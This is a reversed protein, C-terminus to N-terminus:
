CLTSDFAFAIEIFGDLAFHTIDLLFSKIIFFAHTRLLGSLGWLVHPFWCDKVKIVLLNKLLNLLIVFCFLIFISFFVIQSNFANQAVM